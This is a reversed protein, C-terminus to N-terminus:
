NKFYKALKHPKADEDHIFNRAINFYFEPDDEAAYARATEFYDNRAMNMALFYETCHDHIGKQSLFSKVTEYNWYEGYPRMMRVINQAEAEDFKYYMSELEMLLEEYVKENTYKLSNWAKDELVLLDEMSIKGEDAIARVLEAHRSM